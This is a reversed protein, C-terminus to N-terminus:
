GIKVFVAPHATCGSDILWSKIPVQGAGVDWAYAEVVQAVGM